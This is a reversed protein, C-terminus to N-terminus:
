QSSISEPNVGEIEVHDGIEITRDRGAPPVHTNIMIRYPHDFRDSDLWPPLTRERQKVFIQRFQPYAEGTEPDRTPVVCRQCPNVGDLIADGIRFRVVEGEDAILRDEWFAPVGGIVVNPRLRRCMQEPDIGTFWSALEELTARSILTPGSRLRDDPFGGVDAVKLRVSEELHDSLWSNVADHDTALSFSREAAGGRSLTLVGNELNSRIRHITDTRKGNVFEDDEDVIAYKRDGVFAGSESGLTATSVSQPDLSKIPYVVLQSVSPDVHDGNAM